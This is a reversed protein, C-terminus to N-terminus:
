YAAVYTASDATDGAAVQPGTPDATVVPPPLPTTNWSVTWVELGIQESWGQIVADTPPATAPLNTLTVHALPTAAQVAAVVAADTETLLDVVVNPSRVLATKDSTLRWNAIDLAQQDTEVNVTDQQSIVGFAAQSAADYVRQSSGNPRSIDWENVVAQDDIQFTMDATVQDSGVNLTVAVAPNFTRSRNLFAVQGAGNIYVYGGEAAATDLLAQQMSVGDVDASGMEGLGIDLTSGNNARYSLLRTIHTDTREGNFDSVGAAYHNLLRTSSLVTPYSALYAFAGSFPLLMAGASPRGGLSLNGKGPAVPVATGATPIEDVTLTTAGTGVNVTVAVYHVGGDLPAPVDAFVGASIFQSFVLVGVDTLTLFLDCGDGEFYCIVENTVPPATPFLVEVELTFTAGFSSPVSLWSGPQNPLGTGAPNTVAVMTGALFNGVPSQGAAIEGAGYKSAVVTAPPQSATVDGFSTAGESEQLMYLYDPSDTLMEEALYSRLPMRGWRGLADTAVVQVYNFSGGDFAATFSNVYGDFRNYTTAGPKTTVRVRVGPQINPFYPSTSLGPTFRGGTLDGPLDMNDLVFSCQSPSVTGSGDSRGGSISIPQGVGRATPVYKTVDTFMPSGGFDTGSLDMEVIFNPMM